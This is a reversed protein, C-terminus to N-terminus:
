WGLHYQAFNEPTECNQIAKLVSNGITGTSLVAFKKGEKLTTIKGVEMKEFPLKWDSITGKGRPYRIAIPQKLGLSATYLINRLDIENLPAYILM